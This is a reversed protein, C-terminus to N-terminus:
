IYLEIYIYIYFIKAWFIDLYILIVLRKVYFSDLVINFLNFKFLMIKYFYIVYNTIPPGVSRKLRM